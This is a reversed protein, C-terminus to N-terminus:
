VANTVAVTDPIQVARKSGFVRIKTRNGDFVKTGNIFTNDITLTAGGTSGKFIIRGRVAEESANGYVRADDLVSDEYTEVSYTVDYYDTLTQGDDVMTTATELAVEVNELLHKDYSSPSGGGADEIVIEEFILTRTIAM